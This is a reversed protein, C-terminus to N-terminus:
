TRLENKYFLLSDGVQRAGDTSGGARTAAGARTAGPIGPLRGEKKRDIHVFEATGPKCRCGPLMPPAKRIDRRLTGPAGAVHGDWIILHLNFQTKNTPHEVVPPRDRTSAAKSYNTERSSHCVSM